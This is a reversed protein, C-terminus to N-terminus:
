SGGEKRRKMGAEDDAKQRQQLTWFYAEQSPPVKEARLKGELNCPNVAGCTPCAITGNGAARTTAMVRFPNACAVCILLSRSKSM